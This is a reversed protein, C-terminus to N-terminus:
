VPHPNYLALQTGLRYVETLPLNFYELHITLEEQPIWYLGQGTWSLWNLCVIFQTFMVLYIKGSSPVRM